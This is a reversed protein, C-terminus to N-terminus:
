PREVLTWAQGPAREIPQRCLVCRNTLHGGRRRTRLPTPQHGLLGCILQM